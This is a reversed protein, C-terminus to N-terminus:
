TKSNKFVVSISISYNNEKSKKEIQNIDVSQIGPNVMLNTIFNVISDEKFATLSAIAKTQTTSPDYNVSLNNFIIDQPTSTVLLDIQQDYQPQKAYFNKIMILRQQLSSFENEFNQTSELIAQQQRVVESLDSNKRDLWFRSLFALVVILETIVIVSRGITTLWKFVRASFSNPNETDPLLSLEKKIAM